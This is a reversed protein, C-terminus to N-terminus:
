LIEAMDRRTEVSLYVRGKNEVSINIGTDLFPGNPSRTIWDVAPLLTPADIMSWRKADEGEFAMDAETITAM